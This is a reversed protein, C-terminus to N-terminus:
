AWTADGGITHLLFRRWRPPILCQLKLRAHGAAAQKDTAYRLQLQDHPYKKEIRKEEPLELDDAEIHLKRAEAIKHLRERQAKKLEDSVPAFLMTEFLIPPGASMFSHDVGLFVTSLKEGYLTINRGVIRGKSDEFMRAWQLTADPGVIPTGDRNYYMARKRMEDFAIRWPEQENEM